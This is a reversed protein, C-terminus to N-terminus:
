ALLSALGLISRGGVQAFINNKNIIRTFRVSIIRKKKQFVSKSTDDESKFYLM